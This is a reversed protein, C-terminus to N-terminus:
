HRRQSSPLLSNYSRVTEIFCAVAEEPTDQEVGHGLGAIFAPDDGMRHLLEQVRKEVEKLPAKLFAPDLNGQLAISTRERMEWVPITWDLSVCTPHLSLLEDLYLCSGRMFIILPVAIRERIRKLYPLVFNRLAAQDLLGAWSDFLQIADVGADVQMQLYDITVETLEDLLHYLEIPRTYIWKKTEHLDLRHKKELVYTAVTFPGGAFGILPVKLRKKLARIGQGVFALRERAPVRAETRATVQPGIGDPYSLGYGLPLLVMLIDSFLIAADMGFQEIPLLTIEEIKEPDCFLDMLSVGKRLAQYRKMYRGAQRMLWIPPRGAHNKGALADLFIV